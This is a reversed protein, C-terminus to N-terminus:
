KLLVSLFLNLIASIKDFLNSGINGAISAIATADALILQPIIPMSNTGSALLTEIQTYIANNALTMADTIEGLIKATTSVLLEDIEKVSIAFRAQIDLDLQTNSAFVLAGTDIQMKSLIKATDKTITGSTKAFENTLGSIIATNGDNIAEEIATVDSPGIGDLIAAIEILGEEILETIKTEISIATTKIIDLIPQIPPLTIPPITKVQLQQVPPNFKSTQGSQFHAFLTKAPFETGIATSTTPKFIHSSRLKSLNARFPITTLAAPKCM